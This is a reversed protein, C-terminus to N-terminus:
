DHQESKKSAEDIEKAIRESLKEPIDEESGLKAEAFKELLEKTLYKLLLSDGEEKTLIGKAVLADAM